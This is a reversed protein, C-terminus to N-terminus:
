IARLLKNRTQIPVDFLLHRVSPRGDFVIAQIIYGQQELNIRGQRYTDVSENQVEQAYLNKKLHSARIVCVGYDRKFFTVDDIAM